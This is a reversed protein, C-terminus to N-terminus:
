MEEFDFSLTFRLTNALPNHQVTPILYSFDIAFVNLKLGLGVSFFKRNGKWKNENFYGARLAFQKNYWYEAGISWTIEQLEESFGDPADGFSQIMGAPVSVNPDKGDEIIKDGNTDLSDAYIPPTPVLLKNIDVALTFSNYRDLEIDIAGGLRLNIPLFSKGGIDDNETYTIKSGINSINVGVGLTADKDSVTIDREYYASVDAAIANGPKTDVQVSEVYMGGTLNSHIYRAAVGVSLYDSLKRSYAFDLSFEHPTYQNLEAGTNNTFTIEGLNFYLLSAAITQKDDLRKYGTLYALNIDSVLKRLWPTYTLAIGADRKIFAYKAPNWHMSNADPSTAVGVDGMGGSRSDPAIMLFPVATTIGGVRGDAKTDTQAQSKAFVFLLIIVFTKLIKM